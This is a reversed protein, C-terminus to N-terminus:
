SGGSLRRSSSGGTQRLELRHPTGLRPKEPEAAPDDERSLRVFDGRREALRGLERLTDQDARAAAVGFGFEPAADSAVLLAVYDRALDAVVLPALATFLSLENRVGRPVTVKVGLPETQALPYCRRFVSFVPRQLLALWHFVGLLSAVAGPSASDTMELGWAALVCRKIINADPEARPPDGSLWCGMGTLADAATVDKEPKRRVGEVIMAQDLM